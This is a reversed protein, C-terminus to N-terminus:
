LKLSRTIATPIIICLWIFKLCKLQYNQAYPVEGASFLIEIKEVKQFPPALTLTKSQM